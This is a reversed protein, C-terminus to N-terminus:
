NMNYKQVEVRKAFAAQEQAKQEKRDREDRDLVM